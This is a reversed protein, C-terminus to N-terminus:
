LSATEAEALVEGFTDPLGPYERDRLVSKTETRAVELLERNLKCQRSKQMAYKSGHLPLKCRRTFKVIKVKLKKFRVMNIIEATHELRAISEECRDTQKREFHSLM